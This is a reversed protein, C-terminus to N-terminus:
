RSIKGDIAIVSQCAATFEAMFRRFCLGYQDPDLLRLVRSFTDHSPPGNELDLFARLFTEKAKTFEAMDVAM